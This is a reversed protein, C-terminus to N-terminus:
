CTKIPKKFGVEMEMLMSDRSDWVENLSFGISAPNKISDKLEILPLLDNQEVPTLLM